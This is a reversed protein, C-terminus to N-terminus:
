KDFLVKCIRRHCRYQLIYDNDIDYLVPKMICDVSALTHEVKANIAPQKIVVSVPEKDEDSNITELIPNGSGDKSPLQCSSFCKKFQAYSLITFKTGSFNFADVDAKVTYYVGSTM